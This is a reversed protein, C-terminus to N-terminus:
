MMKLMNKFHIFRVLTLTHQGGGGVDLGVVIGWGGERCAVIDGGRGGAAISYLTCGTPLCPNEGSSILPLIPTHLNWQNWGM